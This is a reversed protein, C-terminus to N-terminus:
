KVQKKKKDEEDLLMNSFTESLGMATMINIAQQRSFGGLTYQSLINILTNIQTGNLRSIGGTSSQGQNNFQSNVSSQLNGVLNFSSGGQGSQSGQNGQNTNQNNYNDGNDGQSDQTGDKKISNVGMMNFDDTGPNILKNDGNMGNNFSAEELVQREYAIQNLEDDVETDTLGRWKKMYTKRSLVGSEVEALDTTKEEIEDEPLPTNQVVEVDYTVPTIRESIYKTVCSPYVIAGEIIIETMESLGPGWVKMKEKCRVILPWYIAKLAKGSTIAGQMTDLTINPMDVQEYGATKIRDLSTKLAESYHMKPELLGVEPHANTLNQDSGLDWFAGAGTSLNKTSNSEMDVTYKTPNMSKRQADSDANSLKSYWQEYDQLLEVESEGSVEGLLGDNILVVAPIRKLKIPQKEAIHEVLVGTGDYMDEELYVVDSDEDYTYKKKFIRRDKLSVCDKAIIFCVFKTLFNPNSLKTEYIFQLSNLFTITVGDEENFNVLGAVRKGIFCDKAAKILIDQFRNKKLVTTILDNMVALSKKSEETLVSTDGKPEVTIDPQEGFLFRAEKNILSAAMKYKLKAPVYDGNTGEVLFNKGRKYIKYLRFILGFEDFLEQVGVDMEERILAYPIKNYASLIYTNEIYEDYEEVINAYVKQEENLM